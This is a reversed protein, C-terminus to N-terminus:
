PADNETGDTKVIEYILGASLFSTLSGLCILMVIQLYAGDKPALAMTAAFIVAMAVLEFAHSRGTRAGDAKEHTLARIAGALIGFALMMAVVRLPLTFIAMGALVSAIWFFFAKL